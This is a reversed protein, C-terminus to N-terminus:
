LHRCRWFNKQKSLDTCLESWFPALKKNKPWFKFKERIKLTASFWSEFVWLWAVSSASLSHTLHLKHCLVRGSNQMNHSGDSTFGHSLFTNNETTAINLAFLFPCEKMGYRKVIFTFAFLLLSPFLPDIKSFRFMSMSFGPLRWCTDQASWLLSCWSILQHDPKSASSLCNSNTNKLGPVSRNWAVVSYIFRFTLSAFPLPSMEWSWDTQKDFCTSRGNIM